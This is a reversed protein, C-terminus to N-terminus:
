RPPEGAGGRLVIRVVANSSVTEGTDQDLATATASVSARGAVFLDAARGQFVGPATVVVASWDTTGDCAVVLGFKGTLSSQAHDQKLQGSISVLVPRSCTISGTVAALGTAPDVAGTDNIALGVGLPPPAPLANLQLRGGSTWYDGGAMVWYTTGGRADFRVRSQATSAANDNCAEQILAGRAGRYVSLITDYDSGFTNFEVRMDTAPTFSYWVTKKSGYCFPDDIGSTAKATSQEHTYPLDNIEIPAAFDDNTPPAAIIRIATFTTELNGAGNDGKFTVFYSGAQGEAPLWSFTGSNNGSDFFTAGPPLGTASLTVHRGATDAASVGFSVPDRELANVATPATLEIALTANYRVEGRAAVAWGECHQEFAARFSLVTAKGFADTGYVIEKVEFSGTLTNCGRGDGYVSLGPTSTQFPWRIANTYVGPALRQNGAAAFNFYWWHSFGPTNFAISVGNTQNTYASFAGDAASFYHTQGGSIYDGPDGTLLMSTVGAARAQVAFVLVLSAGLFIRRTHSLTGM